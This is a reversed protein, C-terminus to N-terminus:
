LRDCSLATSGAPFDKPFLAILSSFVSKPDDLFGIRQEVPNFFLGLLV